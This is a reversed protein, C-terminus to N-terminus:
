SLQPHRLSASSSQLRESDSRVGSLEVECSSYGVVWFWIVPSLSRTQRWARIESQRARSSYRENGGPCRQPQLRSRAALPQGQTPENSLRTVGHVFEDCMRCLCKRNEGPSKSRNNQQGRDDPSVFPYARRLDVGGGRWM